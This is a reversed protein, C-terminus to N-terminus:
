AQTGKFFRPFPPSPPTISGHVMMGWVYLLGGCQNSKKISYKMNEVTNETQKGSGPLCKRSSEKLVRSLSNFCKKIIKWFYGNELHFM